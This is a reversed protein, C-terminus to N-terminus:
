SQLKKQRKSDLSTDIWHLKMDDRGRKTGQKKEETDCHVFARVVEYIRSRKGDEDEGEKSETNFYSEQDVHHIKIDIELDQSFDDVSIITDHKIGGGPLANLIKPLNEDM